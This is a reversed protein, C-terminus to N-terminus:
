GLLQVALVHSLGLGEDQHEMCKASCCAQHDPLSNDHGTECSQHTMGPVEDLLTCSVNDDKVVEVTPTEDLRSAGFTRM